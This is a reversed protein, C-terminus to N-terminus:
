SYSSMMYVTYQSDERGMETELVSHRPMTQFFPMHGMAFGYAM